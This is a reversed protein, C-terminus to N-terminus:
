LEKLREVVVRYVKPILVKVTDMLEDMVPMVEDLSLGQVARSFESGSNYSLQSSSAFSYDQKETLNDLITYYAALKICTRADPEKVKHCEEIAERLEDERIM